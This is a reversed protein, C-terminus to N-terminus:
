ADKGEYWTIELDRVEIGDLCRVNIAAMPSGDPMQGFAFPKIGCSTCFQHGIVHDHFRYERLDGEGSKLEFAARPVFSLLTGSKTCISCNCAIVKDLALEVEFRVKGCHCGGNMRKADSM